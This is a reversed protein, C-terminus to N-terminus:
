DYAPRRAGSGRSIRGAARDVRSRTSNCAGRGVRSRTGGPGGPPRRRVRDGRVSRARRVGAARVRGVHDARADPLGDPLGDHRREEYDVLVYVRTDPRGSATAADRRVDRMMFMGVRFVLRGREPGRLPGHHRRCTRDPDADDYVADIAKCNVAEYDKLYGDAEIAPSAARAVEVGGVAILCLAALGAAMMRSSESWRNQLM